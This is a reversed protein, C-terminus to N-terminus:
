EAYFYLSYGGLSIPLTPEERGDSYTTMAVTANGIKGDFTIYYDTGGPHRGSVTYVGEYTTGNTKDTITVQGNKALLTMEIVKAEPHTASEADVADYVAEGEEIHAVVRMHWEYDEIELGGLRCSSLSLVLLLALLFLSFAKKM